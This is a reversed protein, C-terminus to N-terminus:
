PNSGRGTRLKSLCAYDHIKVEAQGYSQYVPMIM